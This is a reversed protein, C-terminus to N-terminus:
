RQDSLRGPYDVTRRHEVVYSGNRTYLKGNPGQVSIFGEGLIGIDLDNGTHQILGQGFDVWNKQVTPMQTPHDAGPELADSSTYLDYFERDMKFGSTMVNSLNNSLMDLSEINTRLGSAAAGTLQNM